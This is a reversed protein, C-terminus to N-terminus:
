RAQEPLRISIEGAVLSSQRGNQEIMLYGNEDIGVAVAETRTDGRIVTIPQGFFHMQARYRALLTETQGREILGCTEELHNFFAATLANRRVPHPAYDELCGAIDRIEAPLGGAPTRVNFGIGVIVYALAGTEAEVSAETLIGCLKRGHMLVDNVWKIEPAFDAIERIADCAAVATAATILHIRDLPVAPRLLISIYVGSGSPSLFARGLRGRGASQCDAVAAFGDPLDAARAKIYNNTSDVIPLVCLQQALTQTRLEMRIGAESLADSAADLRYGEGAASDIPFGMERLSTVAKWVATRSVGLERALTGGSVCEGRHEELARLVDDRVM